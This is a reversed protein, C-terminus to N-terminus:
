GGAWPGKGAKAAAERAQTVLHYASGQEAMVRLTDKFLLVRRDGDDGSTIRGATLIAAVITDLDSSTLADSM